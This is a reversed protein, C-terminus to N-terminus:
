RKDPAGQNRKMSSEALLLMTTRMLISADCYSCPARLKAFALTFNNCSPFRSRSMNQLSNLYHVPPPPDDWCVLLPLCLPTEPNAAEQDETELAREPQVFVLQYHLRRRPVALRRSLSWWNRYEPPNAQAWLITLHLLFCGNYQENTLLIANTLENPDRIQYRPEDKDSIDLSSFGIRGKPLTIQHKKNNEMLIPLKSESQTCLVNVFSLGTAIANRNPQFTSGPPFHAHPDEPSYEWCRASKSEIHMAHPTRITLIRSIFPYSNNQHLSGYCVTNPPEKLEIGPLQFLIGSVQKQCFDMGLINQTKMETIWVTLPFTFQGDPDYSFTLTALGIM